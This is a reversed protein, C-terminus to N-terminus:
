PPGHSLKSGGATTEERTSAIEMAPRTGPVAHGPVRTSTVSSGSPESKTSRVHNDM